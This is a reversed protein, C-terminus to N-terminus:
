GHRRSGRAYTIYMEWFLFGVEIEIWKDFATKKSWTIAIFPTFAFREEVKYHVVTWKDTKMRVEMIKTQELDQV